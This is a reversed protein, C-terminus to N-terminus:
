EFEICDVGKDYYDMADEFAEFRQKIVSAQAKRGEEYAADMLRAIGHIFPEIDTTKRKFFICINEYIISTEYVQLLGCKTKLKKKVAM